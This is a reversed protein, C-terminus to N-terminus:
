FVNPSFSFPNSTVIGQGLMPLDKPIYVSVEQNQYDPFTEKKKKNWIKWGWLLM